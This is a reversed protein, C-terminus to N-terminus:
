DTDTKIVRKLEDVLLDILDRLVIARFCYVSIVLSQLISCDSM